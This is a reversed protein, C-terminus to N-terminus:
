ARRREWIDTGGDTEIFIVMGVPVEFEAPLRLEVWWVFGAQMLVPEDFRVLGCENDIFDEEVLDREVGHQSQVIAVAAGDLMYDRVNDVADRVRLRIANAMYGLPAHFVSDFLNAEVRKKERVTGGDDIQKTRFFQLTEPVLGGNAIWTDWFCQHHYCFPEPVHPNMVPRDKYKESM